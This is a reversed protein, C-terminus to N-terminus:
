SFFLSFSSFIMKNLKVVGTYHGQWAVPTLHAFFQPQVLLAIPFCFALGKMYVLCERKLAILLSLKRTNEDRVQIGFLYKGLTSGFLSIFFPNLLMAFFGTLIMDLVRNKDAAQIIEAGVTPAFLVLGIYFLSGMLLMDLLRAFYRRWPHVNYITEINNTATM